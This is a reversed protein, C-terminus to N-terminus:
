AAGKRMGLSFDEISPHEHSWVAFALLGRFARWEQPGSVLSHFEWKRASLHLVATGTVGRLLWTADEDIVDDTGVFEAYRYAALQLAHDSYLGSGTKLDVIWLSGDPFRGLLDFTGAYGHELSWVQREALLVECGSKGLWDLYQRLFPAVEPPVDVLSRGLAAADHVATGLAAKRDREDTAAKRLHVRVSEVAEPTGTRLLSGLGAWDDLVRNIVQTLSWQHLTHPIGALRRVTTVSPVDRGQWTYLRLGDPDTRANKPGTTGIVIIPGTDTTM